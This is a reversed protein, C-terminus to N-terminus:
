AVVVSRIAEPLGMSRRHVYNGAKLKSIMHRQEQKPPRQPRNSVFVQKFKGGDRFKGDEQQGEKQICRFPKLQKRQCPCSLLLENSMM